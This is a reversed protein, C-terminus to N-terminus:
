SCSCSDISPGVDRMMSSAIRPAIMSKKGHPFCTRSLISWSMSFTNRSFGEFGDPGVDPSKGSEKCDEGVFQGESLEHQHCVLVVFSFPITNCRDNGLDM